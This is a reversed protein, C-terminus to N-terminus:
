LQLKERAYEYFQRHCMWNPVKVYESRSLKVMGRTEKQVFNVTSIDEIEDIMAYFMDFCTEFPYKFDPHVEHIGVTYKKGCFTIANQDLKIGTEEELERIAAQVTTEGPDNKGGPIDYGRDPLDTMYINGKNDFLCVFACNSALNEVNEPIENPTFNALYANYDFFEKRIITGESDKYKHPYGYNQIRYQLGLNKWMMEYNFFHDPKNSATEVGIAMLTSSLFETSQVPYPTQYQVFDTIAKGIIQDGNGHCDAAGFTTTTEIQHDGSNGRTFERKFVSVRSNQRDRCNIEIQGNECIITMMRGAIVSFTSSSITVMKGYPYTITASFADPNGTLPNGNLNYQEGFKQGGYNELNKQHTAENGPKFYACSKHASVTMPPVTGMFWNTLDFLHCLKEVFHGGTLNEDGRWDHSALHGHGKWLNESANISLVRGLSGEDLIQKTHQFVPAFRLVFGGFLHKGTSLSTRYIKYVDEETTCAPKESFVNFGKEMATCIDDTHYSNVSAVIVLEPRTEVLLQEYDELTTAYECPQGLKQFFPQISEKERDFCGVVKVPSYPKINNIIDNARHSCGAIFIKM